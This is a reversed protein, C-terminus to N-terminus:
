KGEGALVLGATRFSHRGAGVEQRPLTPVDIEATAGAPVTLTFEYEGGDQFQWEGAVTGHPTVLSTKAWDIGHGPRPAYLVKAYGPELPRIGGVVQHLWDAVAGLAYHNFSTMEGQNITGDPLMSDWREWVTTAGMTVPYLWSPCQEELLLRYADELHGSESLAWTIFPTGAFGTSVRYGNRSVLESLRNGAFTRDDGGDLVEFALALAYVTTCDSLITGDPGVYHTNFAARVRDALDSFHKADETHGLISATESTVRATRYLCATAVVGNDAKSNWPQDPAADPDLWDGFQFGQDWLGNDSLLGEVRRTHATMSEYQRRLVEKDGYAEWLAWPVWVAAESWLATSEPAPFEKPHEEYKLIDPVTFPVMGDAAKQEAALDRLWDQLFDKVDYLYAATPTFVAIDGTWGLRENRQPCDTPLDLFNGKLGWVINRHLQNVLPNSCEFTGTRELASHVVVAEVADVTLEGPWGSVEAYRFGHFTFTPEFFDQGGSLILSDTAQATRLPRVGLEGDELVEAHRVSVIDGRAGQVTFRLWGVLNQGFDVLTKGSPSTFIDVPKLVENRVVPPSIPEALRATEFELAHVGGWSKADFGSKTWADTALRADITQGNYLDNALTASPGSQWSTDTSITQIFGDAYEIVLQGFFGLESGYFASNGNWSLNGRYWGNGLAAGIVNDPELLHTVDYSRYRLRWEYASWGPSLVDEGVRRGNISAEFVGFSTARLIAKVPLGHGDALPFEKRLLPAGNFDENPAIMTASWPLLATM